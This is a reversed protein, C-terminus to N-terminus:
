SLLTCHGALPFIISSMSFYYTLYFAIFVLLTVAPIILKWFRWRFSYWVPLYTPFRGFNPHSTILHLFTSQLSWVRRECFTVFLDTVLQQYLLGMLFLCFASFNPYLCCSCYSASVRSLLNACSWVTLPNNYFMYFLERLLHRYTTRFGKGQCDTNFLGTAVM